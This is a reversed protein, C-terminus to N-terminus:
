KGGGSIRLRFQDHREPEVEINRRFELNSRGLAIYKVNGAIKEPDLIRWCDIIVYPLNEGLCRSIKLGKFEECPTTVIVVDCKNICEDASGLFSVRENMVKRANEMGAPDYAVVSIRDRTLEQALLLGSGEEVVDTNPKYTLGLIGVTGNKRLHQKVLDALLKIQMRNFKDTAEVVMASVGIFRALAGLAINDRPFCPGGYSIAGRLYKSGIRSDHGLAATIIDVDGGPLNECIRALMNAFTIKTTVFANLALKTLEANVFNMRAIHPNNECVSDYLNALMGGARLDSEGILIFDPNLFDRIVTGLAVFEPSYCLGFELNAHKGSVKELYPLLLNEMTGPMITSTVVILHYSNKRKLANGIQEFSNLVFKPSFGGGSDSPTPVVVFTADSSLVAATGDQTAAFNQGHANILNRLGPEFIPVEGKQLQKVRRQDIDVGIVKFGKEAFCGAIPIGLKGMGFFSLRIKQPM